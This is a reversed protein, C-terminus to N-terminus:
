RLLHADADTAAKWSPVLALVVTLLFVLTSTLALQSPALASYLIPDIAAGAASLRSSSLLRLPLGYHAFYLHGAFGLGAGVVVALAAVWTGEILVLVFRRRPTVGVADLLAFERRREVVSMLLTNLVLFGIILFFAVDVLVRGAVNIRILDRQSPLLQPWTLVDV